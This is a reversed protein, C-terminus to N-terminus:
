SLRRAFESSNESGVFQRAEFIKKLQNEKFIYRKEARGIVKNQNKVNYWDEALIQKLEDPLCIHV